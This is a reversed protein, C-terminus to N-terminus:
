RRRPIGTIARFLRLLRSSLSRRERHLAALRQNLWAHIRIDEATPLSQYDPVSPSDQQYSHWSLNSGNHLERFYADLITRNTFYGQRGTQGAASPQPASRRQLDLQVPKRPAPLFQSVRNFPDM